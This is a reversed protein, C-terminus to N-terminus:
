ASEDRELHQRTLSPVSRLQEAVKGRKVAVLEAVISVAIEEPGVAGLDLGVPAHLRELSLSPYRQLLRQSIRILKRRSAVLGLYRPRQQLCRALVEEDLRHDHTAILVWDDDGLTTAKLVAGPDRLDITCEPFRQLTNLEEREDIVRVDFGISRALPATAKAVHGAGFLYLRAASQIPEVFIEM